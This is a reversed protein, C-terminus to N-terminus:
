CESFQRDGTYKGASDFQLQHIVCAGGSGGAGAGSFAAPTVNIVLPPGGVIIPEAPASGPGGWGGWGGWGCCGFLLGQNFNSGKGRLRDRVFRGRGDAVGRNLGNRNLGRAGFPQGHGFAMGPRGVPGGHPFAAMRALAPTLGLSFFLAGAVSARAARMLFSNRM